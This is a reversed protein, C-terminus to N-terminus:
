KADTSSSPATWAFATVNDLNSDLTATITPASPASLDMTKEAWESWDCDTKKGRIRFQIGYLYVAKSDVPWYNSASLTVTATTAKM